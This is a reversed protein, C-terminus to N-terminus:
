VADLEEASEQSDCCEQCYDALYGSACGPCFMRGCQECGSLNDDREECLQCKDKKM